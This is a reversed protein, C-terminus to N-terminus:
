NKILTVWFCRLLDFLVMLSIMFSSHRVVSKEKRTVVGWTSETKVREAVEEPKHRAIEFYCGTLFLKKNEFKSM